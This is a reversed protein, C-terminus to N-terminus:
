ASNGAHCHLRPWFNANRVTYAFGDRRTQFDPVIEGEGFGFHILYQGSLL